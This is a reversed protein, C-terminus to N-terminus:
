AKSMKFVTCHGLHIVDEDKLKKLIISEYAIVGCAKM